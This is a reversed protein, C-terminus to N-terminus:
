VSSTPTCVGQIHVIRLYVTVSVDVVEIHVKSLYKTNLYLYTGHLYRRLYQLM